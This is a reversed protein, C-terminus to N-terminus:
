FSVSWAKHPLSDEDYMLADQEEVVGPSAYVSYLMALDRRALETAGICPDSQTREMVQAQPVQDCRSLCWGLESCSRKHMTATDKVTEMTNLATYKFGQYLRAMLLDRSKDYPRRSEFIKPPRSMMRDVELKRNTIAEKAGSVHEYSDPCLDLIHHGPGDIGRVAMERLEQHSACYFCFFHVLFDDIGPPLCFASPLEYRRRLKERSHCSYWAGFNCGLNGCLSFIQGVGCSFCCSMACYLGFLARIDSNYGHRGVNKVPMLYETGLAGAYAARAWRMQRFGTWLCENWTRGFWVGRWAFPNLKFSDWCPVHVAQKVYKSKPNWMELLGFTWYGKRVRDSYATVVDKMTPPVADRYDSHRKPLKARFEEDPAWCTIWSSTVIAKVLEFLKSMIGEKEEEITELESTKEVKKMNLITIIIIL